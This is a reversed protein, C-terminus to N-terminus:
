PWDGGERLVDVVQTLVTELEELENNVLIRIAQFSRTAPHKGPETAPVVDEILASLQRTSTVASESRVAVVARAIRAAYREEGYRRLM